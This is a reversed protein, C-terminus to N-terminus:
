INISTPILSPQLYPYPRMRNANREVIQEEVAKLAAQFRPLPADNGAGGAGTIASDQFWSPYPYANSRYDGLPRYHLSGLLWLVDIQELALKRPPMMALWSAKDNDAGAPAPGWSAGTVAPAFAMIDKQPFNVAAHQASATFLIMTCIDTLQERGSISTPFNSIRGESALAASWAALETDATVAADSAYYVDVYERVWHHIAQWVLLADDRYPYDPLKQPDNVQRAALDAPLMKAMFDFALRDDAAAQESSAITGAFIHDIPGNPAILSKAAQDNIFLTGEFHPVLLAWLPHIDALHRHTAIAVAEIVLHTRALHTFLEHYNGDAVQVILKAMEWAWRAQDNNSPLIVPYEASDHGCQIAVPVISSGGPPVAFLAMPQYCYKARGNWSGPDLVALEKYDCIYIRGQALASALDDGAVVEAYQAATLGFNVPLDDIGTLLMCNPGAVRLRAFVSDEIFTYAIGPVPLTAFLSIYTDLSRPQTEGDPLNSHSRTVMQYLEEALNNLLGLQEGHTAAEVGEAGLEILGDIIKGFLSTAHPHGMDLAIKAAIKEIVDCRALAQTAPLSTELQEIEVALQNRAIQLGIGILTVFWALTPNDDKPVAGVVPVGPLTPAAGWGYQGQAQVIQAARAARQAPTDNQPLSPNAPPLTMHHGSLRNTVPAM